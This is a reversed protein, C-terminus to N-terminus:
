KMKEPKKKSCFDQMQKSTALIVKWNEEKKTLFINVKENIAVLQIIRTFLGM